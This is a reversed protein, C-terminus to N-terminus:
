LAVRGAQMDALRQELRANTERERLFEERAVGPRAARLRTVEAQLDANEAVLRDADLGRLRTELRHSHERVNSLERSLEIAHEWAEDNERKAAALERQLRRILRGRERLRKLMLKM